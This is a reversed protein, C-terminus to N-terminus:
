TAADRGGTQGSVMVKLRDGHPKEYSKPSTMGRSTDEM